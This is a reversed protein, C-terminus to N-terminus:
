CKKEEGEVYELPIKIQVLTGVGTESEVEFIAQNSTSMKLRLCANVMGVRGKEQLMSISANKMREHLAAVEEEDMGNGTDEIELILYGDNINVRVFIWGPTTKSEIGHVCANEVFTVISLKPICFEKCEEDIELEYSLRDGFRYKQLSLYAKVFDIEKEVTVSDNQWEVYQRQMVALKQVMDATELEHKILSHMRISELANFLFHPNIQSHLALLEANQRAVMMEQEKIKNKYVIEILANIRRAMINYNTMMIGIEDNGKHCYIEMLEDENEVNSFVDSLAHIRATFSYNICYMMFLPLLINVMILLLILPLNKAIEQFVTNDKEVVCIQLKQGYILYSATYGVDAIIDKSAFQKGISNEKGNSMLVRNDDCVYVNLDYNLNNLDRIMSSYDIEIRLVNRSYGHFNLRQFYYIKRKNALNNDEDSDFAFYVGNENQSEVMYHYWSANLQKELQQFQSGSVISQNDTFFVYKMNNQGSVLEIMSNKLFDKYETYYNLPNDYKKKLFDDIYKSTLISKGVSSASEVESSFSYKVANAVNEMEHQKSSKEYSFVVGLIVSDTIILPLVVCFVYFFLLKRRITYNDMYNRIISKIRDM